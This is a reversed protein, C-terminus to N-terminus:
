RQPYACVLWPRGRAGERSMRLCGRGWSVVVRGGAEGKGGGGSGEWTTAARVRILARSILGAPWASTTLSPMTPSTPSRAASMPACICPWGPMDCCASGTAAAAMPWCCCCRAYAAAAPWGCGWPCWNPLGAWKPCSCCTVQYQRARQILLLDGPASSPAAHGTPRTTQRAVGVARGGPNARVLHGKPAGRASTLHRFPPPPPVPMRVSLGCAGLALARQIHAQALLPWTRTAYADLGGLCRKSRAPAICGICLVHCCGGPARPRSTRDPDDRGLGLRM